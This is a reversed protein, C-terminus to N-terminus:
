FEFKTFEGASEVNVVLFDQLKHGQGDDGFITWTVVQDGTSKHMVMKSYAAVTLETSLVESRVGYPSDDDAIHVENDLRVRQGILLKVQHEELNTICEREEASVVSDHSESFNYM